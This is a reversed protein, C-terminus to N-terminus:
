ANNHAESIASLYRVPFADEVKCGILACIDEQEISSPKYVGSLISSVKSKHWNMAQNIEFKKLRSKIRLTDLEVNRM